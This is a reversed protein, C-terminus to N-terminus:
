AWSANEGRHHTVEAPGWIRDVVRRQLMALYFGNQAHVYLARRSSGIGGRVAFEQFIWVALFVLCLAAAFPAGQLGFFGVQAPLVPELLRGILSVGVLYSVAMGAGLAAAAFRAFAYARGTADPLLFVQTVGLLLVIALVGFGPKELLPIGLVSAASVLAALGIGAGVLVLGLRPVLAKPPAAVEARPDIQSGASLFSYGKYYAHGILHLGAAAFAGLGCQLMMFGMQSITSYALKRKVDTQVLMVTAGFVATACGVVALVALAAPAAVLVPSLRILLYGGANVLGAHMLASVPTPTEMSDPLWAHFPLQATSTMAALVILGVIVSLGAPVEGAATRRDRICM